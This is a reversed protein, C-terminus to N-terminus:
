GAAIRRRRAIDHSALLAVVIVASLAALLYMGYAAALGVAATGWLTAATTLGRLRGRERLIVGAGLFGIGSVVQAAIRTPDPGGKVHSSVLAFVCAGLCVAGYTRIGAEKAHWQRELGILGGLLTAYLVRVAYLTELEWDM